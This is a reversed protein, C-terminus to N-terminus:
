DDYPAGERGSASIATFHAPFLGHRLANTSASVFVHFGIPPAGTLGNTGTPPPNLV